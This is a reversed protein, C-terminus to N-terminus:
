SSKHERWLFIATGPLPPPPPPHEWFFFQKKANPWFNTLLENQEKKPIIELSETTQVREDEPKVENWYALFTVVANKTAKRTNESDKGEILNQIEEESLKSFCNRKAESPEM